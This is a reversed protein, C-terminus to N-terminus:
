IAASFDSHGSLYWWIAAPMRGPQTPYRKRSLHVPEARRGGRKEREGHCTRGGCGPARDLESERRAASTIKVSRERIGSRKGTRAEARRQRARVGSHHAACDNKMALRSGVHRIGGI